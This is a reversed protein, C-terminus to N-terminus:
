YPRWAQQGGLYKWMENMYQEHRKSSEAFSPPAYPDRWPSTWTSTGSPPRPAFKNPDSWNSEKRKKDEAARRANEAQEEKVRDAISNWTAKISPNVAQAAYARADSEQFYVRRLNYAIALYKLYYDGPLKKYAVDFDNYLRANYATVTQYLLSRVEGPSMGGTSMNPDIELYKTMEDFQRKYEEADRRRQALIPEAKEKRFVPEFAQIAEERSPYSRDLFPRYPFEGNGTDNVDYVMWTGDALQAMIDFGTVSPVTSHSWWVISRWIPGTEKTLDANAWGFRPGDATIYEKLWAAYSGGTTGNKLAYGPIYGATPITEQKIRGDPLIPIYREFTLSTPVAYLTKGRVNFENLLPIEPSVPEGENNLFQTLPALDNTDYDIKWSSGFRSPLRRANNVTFKVNLDTDMVDLTYLMGSQYGIHLKALDQINPNNGTSDQSRIGFIHSSANARNLSGIVDNGGIFFSTPGGYIDVYPTRVPKEVKIQKGDLKSPILWVPRNLKDEKSALITKYHAIRIDAWEPKLIDAYKKHRPADYYDAKQVIERLGTGVKVGGKYLDYIEVDKGHLSLRLRWFEQPKQASTLAVLVAAVIASM